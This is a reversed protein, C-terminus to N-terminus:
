FEIVGAILKWCPEEGEWNEPAWPIGLSVTILCDNVPQYGEELKSVFVPDTIKAAKLSRGNTTEITGQWGTTGTRNVSFKTVHVLQLTCRQAFPLSQLFSPNVYKISNHLIYSYNNCYKIVDIPKVKDLCKWEGPLVSLNECEFDLAITRKKKLGRMIKQIGEDFTITAAINEYVAKGDVYCQPNNPRAGLERGLFIYRIGKKELAEKLALRNFHPLFRSYPHSRVDGIATVGHQEILAIFKDITHNSHGITLLDM